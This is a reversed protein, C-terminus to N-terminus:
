YGAMATASPSPASKILKGDVGVAFFQATGEGNVDGPKSDGAFTYLPWRGAVLQRTGDSRVITHFQSMNLGSGVTWGKAVLLPPWTQACAGNCTSTTSTDTTLGYLTLGSPTTLVKGLSTNESQVAVASSATPLLSSAPHKKATGAATASSGCAALAMAGFAAVAVVHNLRM